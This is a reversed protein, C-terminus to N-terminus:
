RAPSGGWATIPEFDTLVLDYSSLDLAFVDRVFCLYNNQLVTRLYDVRGDVNVFTLGQRLAFNGFPEMDFFRERPRGSFLYDVELDSDTFAKAMARARSLHGNGTGQVGYLIKM